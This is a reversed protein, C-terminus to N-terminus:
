IGHTTRRWRTSSTRSTVLVAHVFAGTELAAGPPAVQVAQRLQTLEAEAFDWRCAERELFVLLARASLESTGLGLALATRVCEAAEAKLGLEKFSMGMRFHALPDDIKIALAELFAQVAPQHQNLRQLAVALSVHYIPDRPAQAPLAQLVLVAEQASALELWAHSELTYAM